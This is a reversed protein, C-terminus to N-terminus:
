RAPEPQRETHGDDSSLLRRLLYSAQQEASRVDERAQQELMRYDPAPLTIILRRKQM